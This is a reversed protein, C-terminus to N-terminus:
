NGRMLYMRRDSNVLTTAAEIAFHPSFAREFREQTYETFIDERSRLLRQAQSDSKPVFEVILWRGARRFFEPAMSLPVNNGIALHHVLALAMVLDVPGRDQLSMRESGDWAVGPSPNSLDMVLPLINGEGNAKATLYSQEIVAPDQDFAVTTVGADSALRSFLGTNSGLDWVQEPNVTELYERVLSEKHELIETTYTNDEYYNAWNSDKIRWKLGKM